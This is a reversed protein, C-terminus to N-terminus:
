SSPQGSPPLPATPGSTQGGPAIASGNLSAVRMSASRHGCPRLVKGLHALEEEQATGALYMLAAGCEPSNPFGPNDEILGNTYAIRAGPMSTDGDYYVILVQSFQKMAAHSSQADARQRQYAEYEPVTPKRFVCEHGDWLVRVVKRWRQQMAELQEESLM